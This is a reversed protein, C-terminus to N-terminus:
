FSNRYVYAWRNTTKRNLEGTWKHNTGVALGFLLAKRTSVLTYCNNVGFKNSPMLREFVSREGGCNELKWRRQFNWGIRLSHYIDKNADSSVYDAFLKEGSFCIWCRAGSWDVKREARPV